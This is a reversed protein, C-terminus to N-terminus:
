GRRVWKNTTYNQQTQYQQQQSRDYRQPRPRDYYNRNNERNYYRQQQGYGRNYGRNQQGYGRNQARNIHRSKYTAAVSGFTKTDVDKQTQMDQKPKSKKTETQLGDFFSKNKDYKKDEVKAVNEAVEEQKTEEENNEKTTEQPKKDVNKTEIPQGNQQTPEKDFENKAAGFDFDQQDKIDIEDGRLRRSDLFAGTGAQDNGGRQVRQNGRTQYGRNPARQNYRRQQQGYGRQNNYRPQQGHGYERYRRYHSQPPQPPPPQQYYNYRPRQGYYNGHYPTEYYHPQPPPPQGYYGRQGGHPLPPFSRDDGYGRQNYRQQPPQGYGSRYGSVRQGYGGGNQGGSSQGYYADHGYGQQQGSSRSQYGVKRKPAEQQDYGDQRQKPSYNSTQGSRLPNLIEDTLDRRRGNGEDLWLERINVARFIIFEYTCDSPAIAQDGM